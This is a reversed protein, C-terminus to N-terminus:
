CLPTELKFTDAAYDKGKRPGYVCSVMDSDELAKYAHAVKPMIRQTDGGKLERSSYPMELQLRGSLVFDVQITENHYHNWRVAGKKFTIFTVAGKDTVLLDEIEGRDDKFFGKLESHKM